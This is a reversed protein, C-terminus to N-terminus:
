NFISNVWEIFNTTSDGTREAQEHGQDWVTEFDVDAGYSNLALALNIETTLPTDSQSIGTRIRWYTAVNATQYGENAPMLYYLPSFMNLRYEITNGLADLRSIDDSFDAEYSSGKIIEYLVSDFHTM